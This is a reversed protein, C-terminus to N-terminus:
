SHGTRVSAKTLGRAAVPQSPEGSTLSDAAAALRGKFATIADFEDAPKVNGALENLLQFYIPASGNRLGETKVMSQPYTTFEVPVGFVPVSGQSDYKSLVRLFCAFLQGLIRSASM